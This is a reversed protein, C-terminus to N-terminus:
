MWKSDSHSASSGSLAAMGMLDLPSLRTGLEIGLRYTGQEIESTWRIVGRIERCYRQIENVLRVSVREGATFPVHSTLGVGSVSVDVLTAPIGKRLHRRREEVPAATPATEPAIDLTQTM